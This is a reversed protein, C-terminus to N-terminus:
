YGKWKSGYIGPIKSPHGYRSKIYRIAAVANHVPNYIDDYGSLKYANFTSPLTQLLGTAHEGNVPQPNRAKPNGSSEKEVLWELYPKWDDGVGTIEIAEDLWDSVNGSTPTNPNTTIRNLLERIPSSSGPKFKTGIHGDEKLKWAHQELKNYGDVGLIKILQAKYRRVDALFDYGTKYAESASMFLGLAEEKEDPQGSTMERIALSGQKYREDSTKTGPPIYVGTLEKIIKSAEDTVYGFTETLDLINEIRQQQEEKAAAEMEQQRAVADEIQRQREKYQQWQANVIDQWMKYEDEYKDQAAKIREKEQELWREKAKATPLFYTDEPNSTISYNPSTYEFPRIEIEPREPPTIIDYLPMDILGRSPLLPPREPMSEPIITQEEQAPKLWSRVYDPKIYATGNKVTYADRSITGTKGSDPDFLTITGTDPNYNVEYGLDEMTSRIPILSSTTPKQPILPISSQTPTVAGYDEMTSRIPIPPPTTASKPSINSPSSGGWGRSFNWENGSASNTLQQIRPDDYWIEGAQLKQFRTDYDEYLERLLKGTFPDRANPKPLWSSANIFRHDSGPPQFFQYYGSDTEVTHLGEPTRNVIRQYDPLGSTGYDFVYNGKYYSNKDSGIDPSGPLNLAIKADGKKDGSPSSGTWGRSSSWGSGSASGSKIAKAAKLAEQGAPDDKLYKYNKAPVFKGNKYINGHEDVSYSHAM